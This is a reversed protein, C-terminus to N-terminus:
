VGLIMRGQHAAVDALPRLVRRAWSRRRVWEGVRPGYTMYLRRFWAPAGRTVWTRVFDVRADSWSGYIARAVWCFSAIGGAFQGLGALMSAYDTGPQYYGSKYPVANLGGSAAGIATFPLQSAFQSQGFIPGLLTALTQARQLPLTAGFQSLQTRNQQAQLGAQGAIGGLTQGLQAELGGRYDAIQQGTGTSSLTGIRANSEFISERGRSFSRELAPLLSAEVQPIVDQYFGTQLGQLYSERSPRALLADAERMADAGEYLRGIAGSTDVLPTQGLATKGSRIAGQDGALLQGM